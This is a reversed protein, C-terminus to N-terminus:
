VTRNKNKKYEHILNYSCYIIVNRITYRIHANEICLIMKVSAYYEETRILCKRYSIQSTLLFDCFGSTIFVGVWWLWRGVKGHGLPTSSPRRTDPLYLSHNRGEEVKSWQMGVQHPHSPQYRDCKSAELNAKM